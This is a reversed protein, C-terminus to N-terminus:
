VDIHYTLADADEGTTEKFAKIYASLQNQYKTDLDDGEANTKYDVIHWKGGSCYVVDMIGNWIVVGDKSDEKYCFSVECYVEDADLLTKLIDAPLGNTQEFGGNIITEAVVSLDAQIKDLYPIMRATKYENIIGDVIKDIDTNGRSSVLTEMLKHVMTGMLAAFPNKQIEAEDESGPIDKDKSVKSVLSLRSPNELSFSLKEGTRDNLVCEKEAQKYLDKAEYLDGKEPDTYDKSSIFDYINPVLEPELTKWRNRGGGFECIILANRARTAAVYIKRAEEAELAGKEKEREEPYGKTTFYYGQTIDEKNM